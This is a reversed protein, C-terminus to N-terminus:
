RAITVSCHAKSSVERSVSGLMLRSALSRDGTGLVIHDVGEEEACHLIARATDRSKVEVTRCEPVGAHKAILVADNLIKQIEAESHQYGLPGKPGGLAVNVSLIILKADSAKALQGASAVAIRSHESGDTACLVLRTM